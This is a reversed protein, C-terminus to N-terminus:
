LYNYVFSPKRLFNRLNHVSTPSLLLCFIGKWVRGGRSSLCAIRVRHQSKNHNYGLYVQEESHPWISFNTKGLHRQYKDVVVNWEYVYAGNMNIFSYVTFQLIKRSGGQSNRARKRSDERM